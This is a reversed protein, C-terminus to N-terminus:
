RTLAGFTGLEADYVDVSAASFATSEKQLQRSNHGYTSRRLVFKPNAIRPLSIMVSGTVTM